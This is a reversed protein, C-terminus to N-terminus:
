RLESVWRGRWDDLFALSELGPLPDNFAMRVLSKSLPLGKAKEMEEHIIRRELRHRRKEAALQELRVAEARERLQQKTVISFPLPAASTSCAAAARAAAGTPAAAAAAAAAADTSSAVLSPSKAAKGKAAPGPIDLKKLQLGPLPQFATTAAAPSGNAAPGNKTKFSSLVNAAAASKPHALPLQLLPAGTSSTASGANKRGAPSSVSGTGGRDLSGVSAAGVSVVSRGNKDVTAAGADPEFRNLARGIYHSYRRDTAMMDYSQDGGPTTGNTEILTNRVYLPLMSQPIYGVCPHKVFNWIHLCVSSFLDTYTGYVFHDRFLFCIFGLYSGPKGLDGLIMNKKVKFMINEATHSIM